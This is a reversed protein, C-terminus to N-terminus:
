ARQDQNVHVRVADKVVMLETFYEFLNYNFRTLLESLGIM